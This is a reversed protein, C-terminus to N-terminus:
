LAGDLEELLTQHQQTLRVVLPSHRIRQRIQTVYHEREALRCARVFVEVLSQVYSNPQAVYEAHRLTQFAKGARRHVVLRPTGHHQETSGCLEAFTGTSWHWSRFLAAVVLQPLARSMLLRVLTEGGSPGFASGQGHLCRDFQCGPGFRWLHLLRSGVRADFRVLAPTLRQGPSLTLDCPQDREATGIALDRLLQDDPDPRDLRGELVDEALQCHLCTGLDGHPRDLM